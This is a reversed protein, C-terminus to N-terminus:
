SFRLFFLRCFCRQFSLVQLQKCFPFRDIGALAEAIGAVLGISLTQFRGAERGQRSGTPDISTRFPKDFQRQFAQHTGNLYLSFGIWALNRHRRKFAQQVVLFNGGHKGVDPVRKAILRRGDRRFHNSFYTGFGFILFPKVMGRFEQFLMRHLVSCASPVPPKIAATARGSESSPKKRVTAWRAIRAKPIPGTVADGKLRCGPSWAAALCRCTATRITNGYGTGPTSCGNTGTTKRNCPSGASKTMAGCSGNRVRFAPSQASGM